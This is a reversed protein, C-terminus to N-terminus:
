TDPDWSGNEAMVLKLQAAAEELRASVLPESLESAAQAAGMFVWFWTQSQTVYEIDIGEVLEDWTLGAILDRVITYPSRNCM